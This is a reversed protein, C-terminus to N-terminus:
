GPPLLPGLVAYWADAMKVYGADNPHLGDPLDVAPDLASHMDVMVVHQGLAARTAVLEPIAANFLAVKTTDKNQDGNPTIQAVVLLADPVDVAIRDMLDGLRAPANALDIDNNTDNTGIMLLVVHPTKHTDTSDTCEATFADINDRIQQIIWGSHGDHHGSPGAVTGVFDLALGDVEALVRLEKRYSSSDSSGAGDTISDGVPMVFCTGTTPCPNYATVAGGEGAGGAGGM